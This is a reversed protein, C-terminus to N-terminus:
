RPDQAQVSTSWQVQEKHTILLIAPGHRYAWQQVMNAM